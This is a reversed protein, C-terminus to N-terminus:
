PQLEQQIFDAIASTDNLDLVPLSLCVIAPDSPTDTAIARVTPNSAAIPARAPSGQASSGQSSPGRWVEIKPHPANKFGEVLVLDVPSLRALLDDLAPEPRGRLEHMLAWRGPTALITEQAGAQVHRWSDTGPQDTRAEHHAHKISSVAMGRATFERILREMLHTKGANKWGTVGFVKM